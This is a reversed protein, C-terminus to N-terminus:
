VRWRMVGGTVPGRWTALLRCAEREEETMGPRDKVDGDDDKPPSGAAAGRAFLCHVGLRSAQANIAGRTVNPFLKMVADAGGTPYLRIIAERRANMSPMVKREAEGPVASAAVSPLSVEGGDPM